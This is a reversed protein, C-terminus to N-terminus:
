LPVKRVAETAPNSCRQTGILCPKADAPPPCVQQRGNILCLHASPPSMLDPHRPTTDVTIPPGPVAMAQANCTSVMIATSLAAWIVQRM